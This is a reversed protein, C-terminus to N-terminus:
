NLVSDIYAGGGTGGFIVGSGNIGIGDVNHTSFSAEISSPDGSHINKTSGTYYQLM